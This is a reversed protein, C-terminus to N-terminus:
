NEPVLLLLLKFLPPKPLPEFLFPPELLVKVLLDLSVGKWSEEDSKCDNELNIGLSKVSPRSMCTSESNFLKITAPSGSFILLNWFNILFISLGTGTIKISTIIISTFM